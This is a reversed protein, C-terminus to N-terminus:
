LFHRSRTAMLSSHASLSGLRSGSIEMAHRRGAVHSTRNGLFAAARRRLM